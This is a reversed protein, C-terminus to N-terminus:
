REKLNTTTRKMCNTKKEQVSSHSMWASVKKRLEQGERFEFSVRSFKKTWDIDIFMSMFINVQEALKWNTKFRKSFRCHRGPFVNWEFEIPEGDTGFLERCENSQQFDQLQDTWKGNAETHEQMKGLCLVSDSYVHAQSTSRSDKGVVEMDVEAKTEMTRSWILLKALADDMEEEDTTVYEGGCSFIAFNTGFRCSNAIAIVVENWHSNAFM